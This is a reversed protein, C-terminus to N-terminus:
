TTYRWSDRCMEELGFECAFGLAERALSADAYVTALDGARRPLIEYGDKSTLVM